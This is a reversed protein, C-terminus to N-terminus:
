PADFVESWFHWTTLLQSNNREKHHRVISKELTRDLMYIITSAM